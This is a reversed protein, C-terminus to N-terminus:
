TAPKRSSGKSEGTAGLTAMKYYTHYQHAKKTNGERLADKKLFPPEVGPRQMLCHM